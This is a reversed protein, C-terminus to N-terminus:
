SAIEQMMATRATRDRVRAGMNYYVLGRIDLGLKAKKVFIKLFKQVYCLFVSGRGKEPFPETGFECTEM